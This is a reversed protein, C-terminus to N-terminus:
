TSATPWAWAWLKPRVGQRASVKRPGEQRQVLLGADAGLARWCVMKVDRGARTRLGGGGPLRTVAKVSEEEASHLKLRGPQGRRYDNSGPLEIDGM